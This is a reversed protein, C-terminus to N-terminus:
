RDHAQETEFTGQAAGGRALGTLGPHHALMDRSLAEYPVDDFLGRDNVYEMHREDRTNYPHLLSDERGDFELPKVGFRECMSLNFAPTAKVWKGELYLAVYGHWLYLDGGVLQRLRDTTLHNRVDAFGVRAPIGAGRAAAALLVGKPVCYAAGEALTHSATFWERDMRCRYPDYRIEDRVAYYLRVARDVPDRAGDVVRDIFARVVPQDHDLFTTAQLYKENM